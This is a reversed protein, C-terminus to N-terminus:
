PRGKKNDRQRMREDKGKQSYKQRDTGTQKRRTERGAQQDTASDALRDAEKGTQRKKEKRKM